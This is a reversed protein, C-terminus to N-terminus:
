LWPLSRKPQLRKYNDMGYDNFQYGPLYGGYADILELLVDKGNARIIKVRYGSGKSKWVEGVKFTVVM